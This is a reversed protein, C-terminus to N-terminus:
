DKLEQALQQWESITLTEARRNPDIDTKALLQRMEDVPKRLSASLSNSLKKRKGSFGAMVVKLLARQEAIPVLPVPRRRLVLLASEVEPAPWFATPPVIEVIQSEYNLELEVTLLGRRSDGPLASIREASEKQVLMLIHHPANSSAALKRLLPSTIAYPINAIVVWSGTVIHLQLDSEPRELQQLIDAAVVTLGDPTGLSEALKRALVPDREVSIVPRNTAILQQTLVGLGPGIELITDDEGLWKGWEDKMAQLVAVDILFHQGLWKDPAIGFSKLRAQIAEKSLM